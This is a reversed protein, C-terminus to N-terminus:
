CSAGQRWCSCGGCCLPRSAAPSRPCHRAALASGRRGRGGARGKRHVDRQSRRKPGRSHSCRPQLVLSCHKQPTCHLTIRSPSASFCHTSRHPATTHAPLAPMLLQRPMCGCTRNLAAVSLGSQRSRAWAPGDPGCREVAAASPLLRREGRLRGPGQGQAAGGPRRQRGKGVRRRRRRHVGRRCFHSARHPRGAPALAVAPPAAAAARCSPPASQSSTFPHPPSPRINDRPRRGRCM